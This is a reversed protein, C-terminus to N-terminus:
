AAHSDAAQFTMVAGIPRGSEVFVMSAKCKVILEADSRVTLETEPEPQAGELRLGRLIPSLAETLLASGLPWHGAQPQDIPFGFLVSHEQLSLLNRAAQNLGVLRGENDLVLAAGGARAVLGNLRRLTSHRDPMSLGVELLAAIRPAVSDALRQVLQVDAAEYADARHSQVSLVGLVRERELVPVTIAAEPLDPRQTAYQVNVRPGQRSWNHVLRPQRQGIVQSTLGNGLPFAGGPLELGDQVQWIVDVTQEAADYVGFFCMSADLVRALEGHLTRLVDILGFSDNSGQLPADSANGYPRRDGQPRTNQV